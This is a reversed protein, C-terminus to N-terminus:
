MTMLMMMMLLMGVCGTVVNGYRVIAITAQMTTGRTFETCFPALIPAPFAVVVLRPRFRDNAGARLQPTLLLLAGAGGAMLLLAETGTSFSAFLLSATGALLVLAM